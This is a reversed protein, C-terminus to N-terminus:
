EAVVSYQEKLANRRSRMTDPVRGCKYQTVRSAYGKSSIVSHQGLGATDNGELAAALSKFATARAQADSASILFDLGGLVLSTAPLFARGRGTSDQRATYFSIALATQLPHTVSGTHTGVVTTLDDGQDYSGDELKTVNAGNALLAVRTKTLVVQSPVMPKIHVDYATRAAIAAATTTQGLATRNAFTLSFAWIEIPALATGFVGSYTVRAHAPRVMASRRTTDPVTFVLPVYQLAQMWAAAVTSAVKNIVQDVVFGPDDLYDGVMGALIQGARVFYRTGPELLTTPVLEILYTDIPAGPLRGLSTLRYRAGPPPGIVAPTGGPLLAGLDEITPPLLFDPASVVM